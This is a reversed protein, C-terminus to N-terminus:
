LIDTYSFFCCFLCLTCSLCLVVCYGVVFLPQSVDMLDVTQLCRTFHITTTIYAFHFLFPFSSLVLFLEPFSLFVYLLIHRAAYWFCLHVIGMFPLPLAHVGHALKFNLLFLFQLLLHIFQCSLYLVCSHIFVIINIDRLFPQFYVVVHLCLSFTM